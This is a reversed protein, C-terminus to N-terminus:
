NRPRADGDGANLLAERLATEPYTRYEFHYPGSRVTEIPNSAMIRDLIRSLAVTLADNGDARDGYETDSTMRAHTWDHYPVHARIEVPSGALLVAAPLSEMAVASIVRTIPVDVIEAAFDDEGAAEM